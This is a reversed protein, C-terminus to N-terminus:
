FLYRKPLHLADSRYIYHAATEPHYVVSRARIDKIKIKSRRTPRLPSKRKKEEKVMLSKHDIYENTIGATPRQELDGFKM